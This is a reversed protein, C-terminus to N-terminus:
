IERGLSLVYNGGCLAWYKYYIDATKIVYGYDRLGLWYVWKALKLKEKSMIDSPFDKGTLLNHAKELLDRKKEKQLRKFYNPEWQYSLGEPIPLPCPEHGPYAQWPVSTVIPPFFRLWKVYFRHGLCLDVPCKLISSLFDGDFFPLHFEIRHLDIDEFHNSLHRRQDNLLLFIHFGRGPDDSHIDNLEERIGLEFIESLYHAINVKLLGKVVALKEQDLFAKIAADLKRERILNVIVQSLYLHGVGVSGGDGSWVLQPREVHWSNRYKSERLSSAMMISWYSNMERLVQTHISGIKRAFEAGLMQDQTRDLSFNFTHVSVNRSRLEAVISRSDLGGSLFAATGTDTRLRRVIAKEFGFYAEELLEEETQNSQPIEDWRWYQSSYIENGVIQMIEAAKLMKIDTYPTRTGLPFGMSALETVGRIDMKKPIFRLTELIRLATAFVVYEESVWYYMSRICLKDAMLTLKGKKPQYHIACFVGNAKKLFEWNERDCEQHLLDLDYTRTRFLSGDELALLLEGGLMSVSGTPDVRMAPEDYAGIDVKALFVRDDKFTLIEDKPNRSIILKLEECVTDSLSHDKHRSFIGALITM